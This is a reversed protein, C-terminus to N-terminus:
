SSLEEAQSFFSTPLYYYRSFMEGAGWAVLLGENRNVTNLLRIAISLMVSHDQDFLDAPIRIGETVSGDDFFMQAWVKIDDYMCKCELCHEGCHDCEGSM